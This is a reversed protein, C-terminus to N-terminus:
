PIGSNRSFFDAFEVLIVPLITASKLQSEPLWNPM